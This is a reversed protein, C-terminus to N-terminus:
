NNYYEGLLTQGAKRNFNKRVAFMDWFWFRTAIKLEYQRQITGSQDVEDFGYRYRDPLLVPFQGLTFLSATVPQGCVFDKQLRHLRIRVVSRNLTDDSIKFIGAMKLIKFEKTLEPNVIYAEKKAGTYTFNRYEKPFIKYSYCSSLITASLIICLVIKM